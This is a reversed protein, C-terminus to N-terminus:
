SVSSTNSDWGPGALAFLEAWNTPNAQVFGDVMVCHTTIWNHIAGVFRQRNSYLALGRRDELWVPCSRFRWDIDVSYPNVWREPLLHHIEGTAAALLLNRYRLGHIMIVTGNEGGWVMMVAMEGTYGPIPNTILLVEKPARSIYQGTEDHLLADGNPNCLQQPLKGESDIAQAVLALNSLRSIEALLRLKTREVEADTVPDPLMKLESSVRVIKNNIEARDFIGM